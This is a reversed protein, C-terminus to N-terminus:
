AARWNTVTRYEKGSKENTKTELNFVVTTGVVSEIWERMTSAEPVNFNAIRQKTYKAADKTLYLQESYLRRNLEVGTLDQGEAAEEAKFSFKVFQKGNANKEIVYDVVVGKYKGDPHNRITEVDAPNLDLIDDSDTM